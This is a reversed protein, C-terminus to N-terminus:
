AVTLKEFIRCLLNTYRYCELIKTPINETGIEALVDSITNGLLKTTEWTNRWAFALITGRDLWSQKTGFGEWDM